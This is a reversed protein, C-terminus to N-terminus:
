KKRRGGMRMAVTVMVFAFVGMALAFLVNILLSGVALILQGVFFVVVAVVACYILKDRTSM